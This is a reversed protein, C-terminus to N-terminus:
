QRKNSVDEPYEVFDLLISANNAHRWALIKCTGPCMPNRILPM